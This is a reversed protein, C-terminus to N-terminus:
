AFSLGEWQAQNMETVLVANPVIVESAIRRVGVLVDKCIATGTYSYEGPPLKYGYGHDDMMVDTVAFANLKKHLLSYHESKAGHLEVRIIFRNM